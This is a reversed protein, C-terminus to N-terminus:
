EIRRGESTLLERMKQLGLRMRTKITGLPAGMSQSIESQTLGQFYAMFIVQKQAAPIKEMVGLLHERDLQALVIDPVQDNGGASVIFAEDIEVTPLKAQRRSKRLEDISRNHTISLLWASFPGRESKCSSGRSWLTMFVDQTVEEAVGPKEVIRISLSYVLRVYRDYLVSLAEKDGQVIRDVLTHDDLQEQEKQAPSDEAM